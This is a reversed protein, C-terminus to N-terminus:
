SVFRLRICAADKPHEVVMDAVTALCEIILMQGGLKRSVTPIADSSVTVEAAGGNRNVQIAGGHEGVHLIASALVREAYGARTTVVSDGFDALEVELGPRARDARQRARQVIDGLGLPEPPPTSRVEARAAEILQDIWFSLSRAAPVMDAGIEALDDAASASAVLTSGSVLLNVENRLDHAILDLAALVPSSL